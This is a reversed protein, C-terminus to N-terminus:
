VLAAGCRGTSFGDVVVLAVCFLGFASVLSWISIGFSFCGGLLGFSVFVAPLLMLLSVSVAAMRM